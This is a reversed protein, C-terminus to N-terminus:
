KLKNSERELHQQLEKKDYMLHYNKKFVQERNSRPLKLYYKATKLDIKGSEIDKLIISPLKMIQQERYLKIYSIGERRAYEKLSIQLRTIRKHTDIISKFDYSKPKIHLSQLRKLHSYSIGLRKAYAKMTLGLSKMEQNRYIAISKSKELELQKYYNENEKLLNTVLEKLENPPLFTQVKNDVQKRLITFQLLITRTRICPIRMLEKQTRQSLLGNDSILKMIGDSKIHKRDILQIM